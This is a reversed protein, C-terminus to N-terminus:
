LEIHINKQEAFYTVCEKRNAFGCEKLYINIINQAFKNNYKNLEGPFIKDHWTNNKLSKYLFALATHNKNRCFYPYVIHGQNEPRLLWDVAYNCSNESLLCFGYYDLSTYGNPQITLLSRLDSENHSSANNDM